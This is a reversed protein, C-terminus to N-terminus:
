PLKSIIQKAAAQATDGPPRRLWLQMFGMVNGKLFGINALEQNSKPDFKILELYAAEGLGSVPAIKTGPQAAGSQKAMDFLRDYFRKADSKSRMTHLTIMLGREPPAEAKELNYGKPFYGCETDHDNGNEAAAKVEHKYVEGLPGGTVAVADKESLVGCASPEEAANTVGAISLGAGMLMVSLIFRM